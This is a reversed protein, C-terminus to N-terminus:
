SELWIAPVGNKSSSRKMMLEVIEPGDLRRRAVRDQEGVRDIAGVQRKRRERAQDIAVVKVVAGDIKRRAPMIGSEVADQRLARRHRLAQRDPAFAPSALEFSKLQRFRASSGAACPSRGPCRRTGFATEPASASIMRHSPRMFRAAESPRLWFRGRAASALSTLANGYRSADGRAATRFCEYGADLQGLELLCHGLSLWAGGDNPRDDSLASLM